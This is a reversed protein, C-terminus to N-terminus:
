ETTVISKELVALKEEDEEDDGDKLITIAHIHCKSACKHGELPRFLGVVGVLRSNNVNSVGILSSSSSVGFCNFNMNTTVREWMWPNVKEEYAIAKKSADELSSPNHAKVDFKISAKLWDIFMYVQRSRLKQGQNTAERPRRLECYEWLTLGDRWGVELDQFERWLRQMHNEPADGQSGRVGFRENLTDEDFRLGERRRNWLSPHPSLLQNAVLNYFGHALSHHSSCGERRCNELLRQMGQSINELAQWMNEM